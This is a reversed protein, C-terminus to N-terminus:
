HTQARAREAEAHPQTVASVVVFVVVNVALAIFGINVDKLADPLFPMLQGVSMKFITTVAVVAVGALIGCFAGQKTARNRPALSCIVAPFLQTVFSYGMLLLAVITEGGHLTFLVAVVAVVPVFVRALKAVTEDSANRQVLGRYIDNALLTSATTLIMSGPVLATLIGAAGIVGVFWPDFTQLSLKFLSLDIDGGKLGPVKLAAAFGVFFVFLLILQYLPLVIANRRFIREDKATFVSGFTHPWMFFGLATLLVTSQFWTVSSGKEPFTLFGPRAVDIAHFMQGLGGYYHMPLYIGLFLVIGLILMDKVVSNWASGRVGSVIVYITVVGAGIWIAASSSIAGYSATSVIIGLGKLQLVLYPILAAVDVVAVLVGLPASDYKRTFFHPQSVVRHTKAFRWVPPLMWYSLVYALTGYALIYYVPAGKGYAFGSGGLFTFTTYIEGAMLLFVFATGFSRGGVTWQELSMDHGRRARVGLYLAFLTVAVIIALASSM